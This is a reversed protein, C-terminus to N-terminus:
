LDTSFYTLFEDNKISGNENVIKCIIDHHPSMLYFQLKTQIHLISNQHQINGGLCLFGM